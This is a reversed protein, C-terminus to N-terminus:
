LFKALEDEDPPNNRAYDTSGAKVMATLSAFDTLAQVKANVNASEEESLSSMKEVSTGCALLFADLDNYRGYTHAAIFEPSLFDYLTPAM